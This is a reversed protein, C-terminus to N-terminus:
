IRLDIVSDVVFYHDNTHKLNWEQTKKQCLASYQTNRNYEGIM